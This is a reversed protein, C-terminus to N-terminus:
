RGVKEGIPAMVPGPLAHSRGLCALLAGLCELNPVAPTGVVDPREILAAQAGLTMRREREARDLEEGLVPYAVRYRSVPVGHADESGGEAAARFQLVLGLATIDVMLGQVWETEAPGALPTAQIQMMLDQILHELRRVVPRVQRPSFRDPRRALFAAIRQRRVLAVRLRASLPRSDFPPREDTM